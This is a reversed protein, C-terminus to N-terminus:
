KSTVCDGAENEASQATGVGARVHVVAIDDSYFRRWENLGDLYTALKRQPNLLTWAIRHQALLMEPRPHEPTNLVDFFTKLFEDGFLYSRGDVFTPTGESILFGGFDNENLVRGCIGAARVAEVAARPSLQRDPALHAFSLVAISSGVASGGALVAAWFPGPKGYFLVTEVRAPGLRLAFSKALLVPVLLGVLESYRAHTLAMHLLGIFLCLRTLPVQIGLGLSFLLFLVLWVELPQYGGFYPPQWENIGGLQVGKIHLRFIDAIGAFSEPTVFGAAASLVLFVVWQRKLTRSTRARQMEFALVGVVGWGLVFSGHVNAWAVMIFLLWGPPPRNQDAARVLEAVWLVMLPWALVHPRAFIHERIFLLALLGSICAQIGNVYFLLHRTLILIAL